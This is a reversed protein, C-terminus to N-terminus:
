LSLSTNQLFILLRIQPFSISGCKVKIATKRLHGMETTRWLNVKASPTAPQSWSNQCLKDRAMIVLSLTEPLFNDGQCISLFVCDVPRHLATAASLRLSSMDRQVSVCFEYQVSRVSSAHITDCTCAGIRVQRLIVKSVKLGKLNFGEIWGCCLVM